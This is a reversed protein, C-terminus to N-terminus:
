GVRAGLLHSSRVHLAVLGHREALEAAKTLNRVPDVGCEALGILAEVAAQPYSIQKAMSVAAGFDAEAPEGCLWRVQGRALLALCETVRHQSESAHAMAHDIHAMAERYRGAGAEIRGLTGHAAAIAMHSEVLSAAELAETAILRARDLEPPDLAALATAARLLPAALAHKMGMTRHLEAARLSLDIARRPEGLDLEIHGLAALTFARQDDRGLEQYLRDAREASAKAAALRGTEVYLAALSQHVGAIGVRRGIRENVALASDYIREAAEHEAFV